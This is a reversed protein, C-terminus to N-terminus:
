VRIAGVQMKFSTFWLQIVYVDKKQEMPLVSHHVVILFTETYMKCNDVYGCLNPSLAKCRKTM